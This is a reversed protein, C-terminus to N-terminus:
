QKGEWIRQTSSKFDVTRPGAKELPNTPKTLQQSDLGQSIYHLVLEAEMGEGFKSEPPM